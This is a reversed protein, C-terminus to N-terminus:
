AMGPASLSLEGGRLPPFIPPPLLTGQGLGQARRSSYRLEPLSQSLRNLRKVWLFLSLTNGLGCQALAQGLVGTGSSNEAAAEAVSPQM